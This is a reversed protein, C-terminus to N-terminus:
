MRHVTPSLKLLALRNSFSLLVLRVHSASQTVLNLVLNCSNSDLRVQLLGSKYGFGFVPNLIRISDLVSLWVIM